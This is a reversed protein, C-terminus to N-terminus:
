AGTCLAAAALVHTARKTANALTLGHLDKELVQVAPQSLCSFLCSPDARCQADMQWISATSTSGSLGHNSAHLAWV